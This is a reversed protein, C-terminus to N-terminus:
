VRHQPSFLRVRGKCHQSTGSFRTKKWTLLRIGHFSFMGVFKICHRIAYRTALCQEEQDGVDRASAEKNSQEVLRKTTRLTSEGLFPLRHIDGLGPIAHCSHLERPPCTLALAELMQVLLLRAETQLGLESILLFVLNLPSQDHSLIM